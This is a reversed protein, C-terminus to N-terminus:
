FGVYKYVLEKSGDICIPGEFESQFTECQHFELEM